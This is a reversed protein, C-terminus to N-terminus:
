RNCTGTSVPTDMSGLADVVPLLEENSMAYGINARTEDKAFIVGAIEGSETLLPGGSNGPEVVAELTLVSRESASGGYIDTVAITGSAAVAAPVNRFAGGHPYGQVVAADGPQVSDAIDLPPAEVDAAIVALDQAPDFYVVRGDQAREGPLEVMVTEVGAVVHANTVLMGDDVVFASGSQLSGCASALGSVRAVSMAAQALEPSETEIGDLDPTQSFDVDDLLGDITPLVTDGLIAGHLRAMGDTLPAPTVDDIARLINSSAVASSVFPIGAAAIGAGTLSLALTAAVTTVIGGLLRELVRLKLKDAGSRILAGIAAGAGAGLLLLGVASGIVATGRWADDTVASSVLPLVWPALIGGVVLGCIMGLSSFLGIRLGTGLAGLVLLVILVDIVIPM